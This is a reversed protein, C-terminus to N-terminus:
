AAADAVISTITPTPPAKAPHSAAQRLAAKLADLEATGDLVPRVYQGRTWTGGPLAAELANAFASGAFTSGAGADCVWCARLGYSGGRWHEQICLHLRAEAAAQPTMRLALRADGLRWLESALVELSVEVASRPQGPLSHAYRDLLAVRDALAPPLQKRTASLWLPTALAWSLAAWQAERHGSAHLTATLAMALLLLAAGLPTTADFWAAGGLVDLWRGARVRNRDGAELPRWSATAAEPLRVFSRDLGLAVCLALLAVGAWPAFGFAAPSAAALTVALFCRVRGSRLQLLPRRRLRRRLVVVRVTHLKLLTLLAILGSVWWAPAKVELAVPPPRGAQDVQGTVAGGSPVAFRVTWPLTRPLHVKRWSLLTLSPLERRSVQDHGEPYREAYSGAPAAVSIRVDTLGGRWAPLTWEYRTHDGAVSGAIASTYMVVVHYRGRWPAQRKNPFSLRLTGDRMLRALPRYKDGKAGEIWPPKLPDLLLSRDLGAIDLHTLWGGRVQLTLVLVVRVRAPSLLQVHSKASTIYARTWARAPQSWVAVALLCVLVWPSRAGLGNAGAHPANTSGDRDLSPVATNFGCRHTRPPM